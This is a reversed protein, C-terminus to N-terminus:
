YRGLKENDRSLEGQQRQSEYLKHKKFTNGLCAIPVISLRNQRVRSVFTPYCPYRGKMTNCANILM